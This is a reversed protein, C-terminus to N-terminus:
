NTKPNLQKRKHKQKQTAFFISVKFPANKLVTTIILCDYNYYRPITVQLLHEIEPFYIKFASLITPLPSHVINAACIVITTDMMMAPRKPKTARAM